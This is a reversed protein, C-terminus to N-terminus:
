DAFMQVINEARICLLPSFVPTWLMQMSQKTYLPLQLLASQTHLVMRCLISITCICNSNSCRQNYCLLFVLHRLCNLFLQLSIQMIISIFINNDAANKQMLKNNASLREVYALPTEWKKKFLYSTNSCIM